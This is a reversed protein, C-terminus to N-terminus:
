EHLQHAPGVESLARRSSRGRVSCLASMALSGIASSGIWFTITMGILDDWVGRHRISWGLFFAWWIAAIGLNVHLIGRRLGMKWFVVLSALIWSGQWFIVGIMEYHIPGTIMPRVSRSVFGVLLGMLAMLLLPRWALGSSPWIDEQRVREVPSEPPQYPNSETM